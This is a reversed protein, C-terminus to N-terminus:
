RKKKLEEVERNLRRMDWRLNEWRDMAVMVCFLQTIYSVVQFWTPLTYTFTYYNLMAFVFFTIIM